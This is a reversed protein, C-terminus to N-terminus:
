IFWNYFSNINKVESHSLTHNYIEVEDIKWLFHDIITWYDSIWICFRPVNVASASDNNTSTAVIDWDLYLTNDQTTTTTFVIHYWKNTVPTFTYSLRFLNITYVWATNNVYWRYFYRTWNPPDMAIFFLNRSVWSWPLASLNFWLSVSMNNQWNVNLWIYDTRRLYSSTGNYSACWNRKWSAVRTINVGTLNFSGATDNANWNLNYKAILPM